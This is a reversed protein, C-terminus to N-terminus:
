TRSQATNGGLLSAICWITMAAHLMVAPWLVVGVPPSRIGAIGLIVAVGLNYIVM